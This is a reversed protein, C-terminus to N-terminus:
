VRHAPAATAPPLRDEGGSGSMPALTTINCRHEATYDCKEEDRELLNCSWMTM